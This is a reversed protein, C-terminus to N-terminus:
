EISEALLQAIDLTPKSSAKQFALECTPCASILTDAGTAELQQARMKAVALADEPFMFSYAGSHGCCRTEAGACAPEAIKVGPIKALLQRAAQTEEHKRALVCPDHYTVTKAVVKQPKLKGQNILDLYLEHAMVVKKKIKHGLEEARTGIQHYCGPCDFIITKAKTKNLLQANREAATVATQKMGAVYPPSGCCVREALHMEVKLGAKHLLAINARIADPQNHLSSCGVYYFVDPHPDNVELDTGAAKTFVSEEYISGNGDVRAALQKVPEPCLDHKGLEHRLSVLLDGCSLDMPCWHQCADCTVCQYLVNQASPDSWDLHGMGMFYGLRAKTAPSYAENKTVLLPPCDFRCMNPCQACKLLGKLEADVGERTYYQKRAKYGEILANRTDGDADMVLKLIWKSKAFKKLLEM